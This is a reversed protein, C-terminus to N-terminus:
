EQKWDYLVELSESSTNTARWGGISTITTNSDLADISDIIKLREKFVEPSQAYVHRLGPINAEIYLEGDKMQVKAGDADLYVDNNRESIVGVTKGNSYFARGYLPMDLDIKFDNKVNELAYTVTQSLMGTPLNAGKKGINFDYAMIHIWDVNAITDLAGFDFAAHHAFGPNIEKFRPMVAIGIEYNKGSNSEEKKFEENLIKMFNVVPGSDAKRMLVSELDITVGDAGVKVIEEVILKAYADPAALVNDILSKKFCGIMPLIKVNNDHAQGIYNKMGAQPLTRSLTTNKKTIDWFNPMIYDASNLMEQKLYKDWFKQVYLFLNKKGSSQEAVFEEHTQDNLVQNFKLAFRDNKLNDVTESVDQNEGWFKHALKQDGKWVEVLLEFYGTPLKGNAFPNIVDVNSGLTTELDSDYVVTKQAKDKALFEQEGIFTLNKYFSESGDIPIPSAKNLLFYRATLTDDNVLDAKDKMFVELDFTNDKMLYTESDGVYIGLKYKDNAHPNQPFIHETSCSKFLGLSFTMYTLGIVAATGVVALTPRNLSKFSFNKKSKKKSKKVKPIKIKDVYKSKSSDTYDGEIEFPIDNGSQYVTEGRVVVEFPIDDVSRLKPAKPSEIDFSVEDGSKFGQKPKSLANYTHKVLSATGRMTGEVARVSLELALYASLETVIPVTALASIGIKKVLSKDEMWDGFYDITGSVMKDLLNDIKFLKNSTRQNKKISRVIVSDLTESDEKNSKIRGGLM